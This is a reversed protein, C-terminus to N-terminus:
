KNSKDYSDIIEIIKGVKVILKILFRDYITFIIISNLRRRQYMQM